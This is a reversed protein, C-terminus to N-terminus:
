KSSRDQAQGGGLKLRRYKRHCAEGQGITHVNEKDHNQIVKAQQQMIKNHLWIRVPNPFGLAFQSGTHAKSSQWHHV